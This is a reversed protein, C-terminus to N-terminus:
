LFCQRTNLYEMFDLLRVFFSRVILHLRVRDAYRVLHVTVLPVMAVRQVSQLGAVVRESEAGGTQRAVAGPCLLEGEGYRCAWTIARASRWVLDDYDYLLLIINIIVNCSIARALVLIEKM